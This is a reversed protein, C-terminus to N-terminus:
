GAVRRLEPCLRGGPARADGPRRQDCLRRRQPAPHAAQGHRLGAGGQRRLHLRAALIAQVTAPMQLTEAPRTLRYAGPEGALMGTEALTRVSEELFLPNGETREILAAKLPPLSPDDGVLGRLLEDASEPPLPDIRLQRYYTKSGWDHRYEPRYTM